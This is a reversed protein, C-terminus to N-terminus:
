GNRRPTPLAAKTQRFQALLAALMQRTADNSEGAIGIMAIGRDPLCYIAAILGDEGEGFVSAPSEGAPRLGVRAIAARGAEKCAEMDTGSPLEAENMSLSAAHVGAGLGLSILAALIVNKM